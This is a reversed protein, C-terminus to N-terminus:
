ICSGFTAMWLVSYKEASPRFDALALIFSSDGFFRRSIARFAAFARHAFDLLRFFTFRRVPLFGHAVHLPGCNINPNRRGFLFGTQLFRFQLFKTSQTSPLWDHIPILPVTACLLITRRQSCEQVIEPFPPDIDNQNPRQVPQCPTQPM